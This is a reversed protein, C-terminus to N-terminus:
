RRLSGYLARAVRRGTEEARSGPVVEFAGGDLHALDGSQGLSPPVGEEALLRALEVEVAAGIRYRERADFGHLVLEEIRVEVAGQARRPAKATARTQGEEM